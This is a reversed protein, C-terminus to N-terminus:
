PKLLAQLTPSRSASRAESTTACPTSTNAPPVCRHRTEDMLLGLEDRRNRLEATKRGLADVRPVCTAESMTGNEFATPYRDISAEAKGIETEVAALEATHAARQATAEGLAADLAADILDIRALTVLMSDIVGQEVQDRLQHHRLAAQRLLHLLPLHLPGRPRLNGPLAPRLPHLLDARRAPLGLPRRLPPRPTAAAILVQEAEASMEASIIPQHHNEARHWRLSTARCTTSVSRAASTRAVVAAVGVGARM